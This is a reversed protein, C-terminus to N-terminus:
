PLIVEFHPGDIFASRGIARRKRVYNEVLSEPDEDTATLEDWFGGWRLKANYKWASQRMAAAIIYIPQWEWRLKGNIYPVLDVAHAFGDKQIQHKSKRKRGDLKSAGAKYLKFQEKDSRAGDHVAFDVPSSALSDFCINVLKPQVHELEKQSRKGFQFAM